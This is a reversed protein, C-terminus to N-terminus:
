LSLGVREGAATTAAERDSTGLQTSWLIVANIPGAGNFGGGGYRGLYSIVSAATFTGSTTVSKSAGNIWLGDIANANSFNLVIVCPTTNATATASIESGAAVVWQTNNGHPTGGANIALSTNAGLEFLREYDANPATMNGVFMLTGSTPPTFTAGTMEDDIGDFVFAPYASNFGTASATPQKSTTGQTFNRSNGSYDTVTAVSGSGGQTIADIWLVVTGYNTPNFDSSPEPPVIGTAVVGQQNMFFGTGALCHGLVLSWILLLTKM